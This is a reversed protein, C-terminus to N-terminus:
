GELLSLLRGLSALADSLQQDLAEADTGIRGRVRERSTMIEQHRRQRDSVAVCLSRCSWALLEADTGGILGLDLAYRALTLAGDLDESLAPPNDGPAVGVVRVAAEVDALLRRLRDAPRDAAVARIPARQKLERVRNRDIMTSGECLVQSM